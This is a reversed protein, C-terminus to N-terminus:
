RQNGVQDKRRYRLPQDCILFDLTDDDDKDFLITEEGNRLRTALRNTSSM